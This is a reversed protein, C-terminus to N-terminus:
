GSQKSLHCALSESRIARPRRWGLRGTPCKGVGNGPPMSRLTWPTLIPAAQTAVIVPTAGKRALPQLRDSLFLCPQGGRGGRCFMMRISVPKDPQAETEATKPHEDPKPSKPAPSGAEPTSSYVPPRPWLGPECAERGDHITARTVASSRATAGQPMQEMLDSEILWDCRMARLSKLHTQQTFDFKQEPLRVNSAPYQQLLRTADRTTAWGFM